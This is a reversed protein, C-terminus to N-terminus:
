SARRKRAAKPAAKESAPAAGDPTDHHESRQKLRAQMFAFHATEFHELWFQPSRTMQREPPVRELVLSIAEPNLGRRLAERKAEEVEPFEMKADMASMIEELGKGALEPRILPGWLRVVRGAVEFSLGSKGNLFNSLSPQKVRLAEAMKTRNDYEPLAMLDRVMARLRANISPSLQPM